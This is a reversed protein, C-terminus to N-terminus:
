RLDQRGATNFTITQNSKAVLLTVVATGNDGGDAVQITFIYPGAPTTGNTTLVLPVTPFPTGGNATWTAPVFTVGAPLGIATVTANVTGNATRTAAVSYTATSGSTQSMAAPTQAGITLAAGIRPADTFTIQAQSAAGRATLYFRVGLHHAEVDFLFADVLRGSADATLTFTRSAHEAPLERLALTVEENPQWGGSSVYVKDGPYYDDLDTRLTAFRYAESAGVSDGGAVMLLGDGAPTTGYSETSLAAGAAATRAVAMPGTQWVQNLWPLYLEAASTPQEVIAGDITEQAIGGVILVANNNPLLFAQHGRRSVMPSSAAAQTIANSVDSYIEASALNTTGDHGGIFLVRGDLLTTASLGHRAINLAPGSLVQGTAPDFIETSQLVADSSAGGAILVRGNALRAAAHQKRATMLTGAASFTATAPDFVELSVVPGAANEGGAILVRGDLLLTATHGWRADTLGTTSLWTGGDFLEASGVPGSANRGGVVLVRGDNLRVATHDARPEGMPAVASFAGDSGYLNVSDLSGDAGAGGTLLIEGSPLLAAAAASRASPLSGTAAWTGTPVDPMSGRLMGSSLGAVAAVIALM